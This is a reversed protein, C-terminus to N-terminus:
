LITLIFVSFVMRCVARQIKVDWLTDFLDIGSCAFPVIEESYRYKLTNLSALRYSAWAAGLVHGLVAASLHPISETVVQIQSNESLLCVDNCM